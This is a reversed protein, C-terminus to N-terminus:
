TCKENWKQKLIQYKRWTAFASRAAILWGTRGDLMGLRVVYSKVWQAIVKAIIMPVSVQKRASYMERAAINSFYEIQKFHDDATYYSYHLIDGKLRNLSAGDVPIVMDHPNVGGWRGKSKKWLRLKRDPYWGSYHVWKGCYNTLRNMEYADASFDAKAKLVSSKLEPSLSEDADLSLVVEHTAMEMARNKQQIHGDFAHQVFRAGHSRCIEATADTSFSDLVVIEDAIERLSELCRGINKEENFTIIVASISIM